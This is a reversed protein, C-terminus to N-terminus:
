HKCWQAATIPQAGPLVGVQKSGPDVFKHSAYNYQNPTPTM